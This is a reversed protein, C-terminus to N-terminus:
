GSIWEPLDKCKLMQSLKENEIQKHKYINENVEQSTQGFINTESEQNLNQSLVVLTSAGVM